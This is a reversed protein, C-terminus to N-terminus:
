SILSHLSLLIKEIRDTCDQKRTLPSRWSDSLPFYVGDRAASGMDWCGDADRNDNLWDSVFKLRKKCYENPYESLIEIAALYRSAHVSKFEGPLHLLSRGHIYYIGAEHSLVYDFYAKEIQRNIEGTLLSIPYFSVFDTLRGGRPKLGFIKRYTEVYSAPDYYGSAFAATIVTSWKDAVSNAVPDDATFKRIWTSMMLATFIDWNHLKERRDPIEKRGKLCDHMYSLAKAVVPDDKTFGLMRLRRLAQETTIPQQPTPDSLTHFYGWHGDDQQLAIIESAWKGNKHDAM